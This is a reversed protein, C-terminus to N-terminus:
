GKPMLREVIQDVSFSAAKARPPFEKFSELWKGVLPQAAYLAFAVNTSWKDYLFSNDASEFPDARLNFVKPLRMEAFPERWADFGEARQEKFHIKYEHARLALLEGDDSWYLFGERPCKEERAPCSPCCTSATM